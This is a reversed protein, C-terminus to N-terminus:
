RLYLFEKFNFLSQALDKWSDGTAALYGLARDKETPSAPRGLAQEFMAEVRESPSDQSAIVKAAWKEAQGIVFPSNLMTLSQAPVNTVDRQPRATAPKPLDFVELFPNHTNRRIEQYISRRGAGDLPGKPNDGKTKGTAYAYYVPISDGFMRPDLEGSTLLIADRIQEAELRRVPMHSLLRNEPDKERAAASAVSAMRYARSTALRRLSSKISWGDEVFRSALYDLLEPHSPPEGLKGFNEETRVLGDGFLQKWLRNVAVRATLPNKPNTIEEALSLRALRPEDYARGGLATLFRRPTPEGPRKPNGRQLLPQPAGGEEVVGPAYRAQPIKSELKRYEAVLAELDKTENPLLKHQVLFDLFAAQDATAEGARWAQVARTAAAAYRESLEAANRPAPAEFLPGAADTLSRPTRDENHFVIRGVGFWSRGDAPPTLKRKAQNDEADTLFQTIEEHTAAEFYASFGKWYDTKWTSWRMNRSKPRYRMHYIGSRPAAYNEIILQVNSSGEGATEFSIYDTDITFRPSQLAAGHKASLRHSYAGPQLVGGIVHDGRPAIDIEGAAAPSDPLGPGQGVWEALDEPKRLDWQTEFHEQNYRRRADLGARRALRLAEWGKAFEGGELGGLVAWAHLPSEPDELAGQVGSAAADSTLKEGLEAAAREWSAGLGARIEGKLKSLRDAHLSLREPSEISRMTPRAGKITGFLAYYDRQSIADFKHDHCRACAVTLGMFTKSLVDIQNDTWKVRDDWPDVPQFGHEVLRWHATAIMSENVGLQPDVRPESLLDGALHERVLEDYPLDANFARILYDRYRWANRIDPDGESGHSESYRMLDMWLRAQREGFRPSELLRDILKEDADASKDALYAEIEEPTPPLGTLDFTARRIFVRRDADAAPVLGEAELRALLFRDVANRAWSADSPEPLKPDRVPRWAWHETRRKDLDFPESPDASASPTGEEPWPLGIEIWRELAAIKEPALKGTPPMQMGDGRLMRVLKSGAPDGSAVVPGADSGKLVAARSDLYLNAFVAQARSSHCSYCNEALVPRVQKEFFELDAPPAAAQIPLAALFLLPPLAKM